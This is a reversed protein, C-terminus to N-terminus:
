NVTSIDNGFPGFQREFMAHMLALAQLPKQLHEKEETTLPEQLHKQFEAWLEPSSELTKRVARGMMTMSTFINHSGKATRYLMDVHQALTKIREEESM